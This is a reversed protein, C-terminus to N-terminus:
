GGNGKAATALPPMIDDVAIRGVEAGEIVVPVSQGSRFIRPKGYGGGRNLSYLEVQRARLSVIWYVPIGATGYVRVM